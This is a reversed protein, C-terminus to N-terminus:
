LEVPSHSNLVEGIVHTVHGTSPRERFSAGEYIETVVMDKTELSTWKIKVKMKFLLKVICGVEWDCGEPNNPTM